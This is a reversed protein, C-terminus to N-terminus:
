IFTEWSTGGRCRLIFRVLADILPRTCLADAISVISEPEIGPRTFDFDIFIPIWLKGAQREAILFCHSAEVMHPLCTPLHYSSEFVSLDRRQSHFTILIVKVGISLKSIILMGLVKGNQSNLKMLKALHSPIDVIWSSILTRVVKEYCRFDHCGMWYIGARTVMPCKRTFVRNESFLM